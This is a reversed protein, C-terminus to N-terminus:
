AGQQGRSAKSPRGPKRPHEIRDRVSDLSIYWLGGHKRSELRGSRALARIRSTSVHLMDAAASVTCCGPLPAEDSELDIAVGLVYGGEPAEHGFLPQPLPKNTKIRNHVHFAIVGAGCASATQVDPQAWTAGPALDPCSVEYGGKDCPAIIAEYSVHM